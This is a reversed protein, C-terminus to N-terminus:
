CGKSIPFFSFSPTKFGGEVKDGLFDTNIAVGDMYHNPDFFFATMSGSIQTDVRLYDVFILNGFM